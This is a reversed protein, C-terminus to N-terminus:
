EVYPRKGDRRYKLAAAAFRLEGRDLFQATIRDGDVPRTLRIITELAKIRPPRKNNGAPAVPNQRFLHGKRIAFRQANRIDFEAKLLNFVGCPLHDGYISFERVVGCLYNPPCLVYNNVIADTVAM